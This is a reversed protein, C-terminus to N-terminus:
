IEAAILRHTMPSYIISIIYITHKVGEMTGKQIDKLVTKWNHVSTVPFLVFVPYCISNSYLTFM